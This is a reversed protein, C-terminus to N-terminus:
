SSAQYHTVKLITLVDFSEGMRLGFIYCNVLNRLANV